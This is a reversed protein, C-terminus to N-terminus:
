PREPAPEYTRKGVNYGAPDYDTIEDYWLPADGELLPSASWRSYVELSELSLRFKRVALGDRKLDYHSPEANLWQRVIGNNYKPPALPMVIERPPPASINVTRECGCRTILRAKM